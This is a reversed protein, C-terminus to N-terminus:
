DGNTSDGCSMQRGIDIGREYAHPVAVTALHIMAKNATDTANAVEEDHGRRETWAAGGGLLSLATVAVPIWKESIM